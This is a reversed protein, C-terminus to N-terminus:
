KNESGWNIKNNDSNESNPSTPTIPNKSISIPTDDEFNSEKMSSKKITSSYNLDDSKKNDSNKSDEKYNFSYDFDDSRKKYIIYILILGVVIGVIYLPPIPLSINSISFANTKQKSPLVSLTVNLSCQEPYSTIDCAVLTYNGTSMLATSYTINGIGTAILNNNAFLAIKDLDFNTSAYITNKSGMILNLTNNSNNNVNLQVEPIGTYTSTNIIPKTNTPIIKIASGCLLLDSSLQTSGSINQLKIFYTNNNILGLNVNQNVGIFYSVGNVSIEAGNKTLLTEAVNLANSYITITNSTGQSLIINNCIPNVLTTSSQQQTQLQQPTGVNIYILNSKIPAKNSAAQDYVIVYYEFHGPTFLNLVLSNSDSNSILTQSDNTYNYWMYTYAGSGGTATAYLIQQSNIPDNIVSPYVKVHIASGLVTIKSISSTVRGLSDIVTVQVSGDETANFTCNNTSCSLTTQVGSNPIFNWHYTYPPTGSSVSVDMNVKQGFDAGQNNPTIYATFFNPNQVYIFNTVNVMNDYQDIISLTINDYGITSSNGNFFLTKSDRGVPQGNVSWEYTYPPYGGSVLATITENNGISLVSQQFNLTASISQFLKFSTAGSISFLLISLIFLIFINSIRNNIIFVM